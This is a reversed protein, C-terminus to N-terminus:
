AEKDIRAGHLGGAVGGPRKLDRPGFRSKNEGSGKVQDEGVQGEGRATSRWTAGQVQM